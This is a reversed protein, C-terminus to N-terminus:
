TAVVKCNYGQNFLAEYTEEQDKENECIVIVGYQENYNFDPETVFDDESEEEDKIEFGFDSMDFAALAELEAELKSFDWEAFEAVKNDALRYAKIQEDTLDDAVVCPLRDFGLKQAAFYRTHGAVIVNEKDVVLPVKFGFQKISEAVKDVAAANNRPNNEYPKLIELALVKIEM